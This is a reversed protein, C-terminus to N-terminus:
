NKFLRNFNGAVQTALDDLPEGRWEALQAYATEIELPHHLRGKTDSLPYQCVDKPPVMDPADTEALLRDAPCARVADRIRKRGPHAGYASFSVYGGLDLLQYLVEKSGGFGHALFGKPLDPGARLCDILQGYARVCHISPPLGTESAIQLQRMFVDRQLREDRPEVWNDLGIEGVSVAGSALYDKLQAEWDDPLDNLRWPHVGYAKLLIATRFPELKRIVSWDDPHTGNVVQAAIPVDVEAFPDPDLAPKLRVDYLHCHADHFQLGSPEPNM